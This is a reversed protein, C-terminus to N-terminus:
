PLPILSSIQEWLEPNNTKWNDDLLVGADWSSDGRTYLKNELINYYLDGAKLTSPFSYVDVAESGVFVQPIFIQVNMQNDTTTIENGINYMANDIVVSITAGNITVPSSTGDVKFGERIMDAIAGKPTNTTEDWFSVLDGYRIDSLTFDLSLKNESNLGIEDAITADLTVQTDYGNISINIYFTVDNNEKLDCFFDNIVIYNIKNKKTKLDQSVFPYFTGVLDTGRLYDNLEQETIYTTRAAENKNDELCEQIEKGQGPKEYLEVILENFRNSVTDDNLNATDIFENRIKKISNAFDTIPVLGNKHASSMDVKIEVAENAFYETKVVDASGSFLDKIMDFFINDNGSSDLGFDALM